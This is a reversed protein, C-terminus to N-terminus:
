KQKKQIPLTSKNLVTSKSQEEVLVIDVEWPQNLVTNRMTQMAQWLM